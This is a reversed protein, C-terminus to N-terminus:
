GCQRFDDARYDMLGRNALFRVISCIDEIQTINTAWGRPNTFPGGRRLNEQGYFFPTDM